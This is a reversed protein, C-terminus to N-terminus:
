TASLSVKRRQRWLYGSGLMLAFSAPILSTPEPVAAGTLEFYNNSTASASQFSMSTSGAFFRAESPNTAFNASTYDSDTYFLTGSPATDSYLYYLTGPRLTFGRVSANPDLSFNWYTGSSDSAIDASSVVALINSATSLNAPSGCYPASLIYLDGFAVRSFTGPAGPREGWSFTLDNLASSGVLELQEGPVDTMNHEGGQSTGNGWILTAASCPSGMLTLLGCAIMRGFLLKRM